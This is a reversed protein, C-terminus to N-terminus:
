ISGWSLVTEFDTFKNDIETNSYTETKKYYDALKIDVDVTKEYDALATVIKGDVIDSKDYDGLKADVDATKAYDALKTDVETTTSYDVLATTIKNDVETSTDYDAFKNDIETVSQKVEDITDNIKKASWAKDTATTTTDDIEVSGKIENGNFLLTDGTANVGLKDLVDEKNDHTHKAEDLPQILADVETKDYYKDPDLGGGTGKLNPTTFSGDENTIDLKYIDNTNNPNEEITPSFGTDGKVNPAEGADITSGDSMTCILHNNSDIEVDTVSVGNKVLITTTEKTGSTGTWEFVIETGEDTPTTSKITCNAGKLAGLGDLSKEMYKKSLAYSVIDM